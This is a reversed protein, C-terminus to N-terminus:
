GQMVACCLVYYIMNKESLVNARHCVPQHINPSYCTVVNAPSSRSPCLKFMRTKDVSSQILFLLNLCWVIHEATGLAGKNKCQM